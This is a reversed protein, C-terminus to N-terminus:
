SRIFLLHLDVFLVCIMPNEEVLLEVFDSFRFYNKKIARCGGTPWPRRMISAERDCESV